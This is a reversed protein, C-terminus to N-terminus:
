QTKNQVAYKENTENEIYGSAYQLIHSLNVVNGFVLIAPKEIDASITRLEKITSIIVKQNKCTAKSIIAVPTFLDVGFSVATSYINEAQTLGMLVIVTNNKIKLLEVWNSNFECNESHGTVVTVSSSYGRATPPIGASLPASFASSIGSIVEVNVNNKLLFEAEEAGRGFIYPDGNKLRAVNYGQNAYDLLLKNIFGQSASHNGKSKGVYIKEVEPPILKLIDESILNDYLAVDIEYFIKLAKLTLLEPDGPGCGILYVKGFLKNIEDKTNKVDILGSCREILKQESIYALNKPLFKEIKDRIVQTLTPSAGNSSVAIKLNKYHLLSSFYFDCEAPVDVTNLLFFRESKLQKLLNNVDASGTADIIINYGDADIKEFKKLYQKKTFAQIDSLMKISIISFDIGNEFLVKAKQCAVNGGGILLIKPNVLLVPLSNIAKM